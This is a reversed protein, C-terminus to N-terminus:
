CHILRENGEHTSMFTFETEYMLRDTRMLICDYFLHNEYHPSQLVVTVQISPIKSWAQEMTAPNPRSARFKLSALVVSMAESPLIHGNDEFIDRDLNHKEITSSLKEASGKM